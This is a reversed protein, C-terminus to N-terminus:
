FDTSIDTRHVVRPPLLALEQQGRIREQTLQDFDGLQFLRVGSVVALTLATGIPTGTSGAEVALVTSETVGSRAALEAATLNHDHRARRIQQGLVAVADDVARQIPETTM